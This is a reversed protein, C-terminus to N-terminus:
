VTQHGPTRYNSRPILYIFNAEYFINTLANRHYVLHRHKNALVFIIQPTLFIRKFVEAPIFFTLDWNLGGERHFVYEKYNNFLHPLDRAYNNLSPEFFSM